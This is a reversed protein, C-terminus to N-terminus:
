KVWIPDWDNYSSALLPRQNSGDANMIWLQKRGAGRNSWYVIQSGDPSWSPHKDWEWGNNTLRQVNTGDTSITYIEDDGSQDSVYAIEDGRPSWVGDWNRAGGSTLPRTTNYYQERVKLQPKDNEDNQVLVDFRGDPSRRERLQALLYPWERTVAYLQGSKPDLAYLSSVGGRDSMFLIKGVLNRAMTEPPIPTPTFTPAPTVYMVLPLPTATPTYTPTRANSPMPTFTGTTMAIATAYAAARTATGQNAPTPTYTVVPPSATITAIIASYPVSTATGVSTAEATATMLPGALSVVDEPEVTPLVLIPTVANTPVPTFTGTTMAVATAYAAAKTAMPANVPAATPVVVAPLGRAAAHVWATAQNEPLPTPTEIKFPLPTSTEAQKAQATATRLDAALTLVNAPTLTLTAVVVRETPTPPPTAPPASLRLVLRPPQGGTAPGGGSDWGFLTDEGSAPGLIRVLLDTKGDAIQATLWERGAKDMTLVNVEGQALDAPYLTPSLTVAAPSNFLSQFDAMALDALDGAPLLQVVWTGGAPPNFRNAQLGTLYFKADLVRAGPSTQRLDLQMISAFAQGGYYGAYLYSDGLNGRKDGGTWWGSNGAKAAITLVQGGPEITPTPTVTPSPTGTPTATKDVAGAGVPQASSTYTPPAVQVTAARWSTIRGILAGLDPWRFPSGALDRGNVVVVPVIVLALIILPILWVWRRRRSPRSDLDEDTAVAVAAPALPPPAVSPYFPCNRHESALCFANQHEEGPRAAPTRAYCLYAPEPDSDGAPGNDSLGVYPCIPPVFEPM